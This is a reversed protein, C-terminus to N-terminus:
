DSDPESHNECDPACLATERAGLEKLLAQVGPSSCVLRPVTRLILEVEDDDLAFSTPLKLLDKRDKKDKVDAFSLYIFNHQVNWLEAEQRTPVGNLEKVRERLKERDNWAQHRLELEKSVLYTTEASYNDMPLTATTMLVDGLGPASKRQDWDVSTETKADVVIVVVRSVLRNNFMRKLSFRPDTSVLGDLTGRLGINDSLGGDLLHIYRRKKKETNTDMRLYSSADRGRRLRVVNDDSELAKRIWKPRPRGGNKESEEWKPQDQFQGEDARNVLRVPSLLGPFASSAAVARAVKFPSLDSHMLDFQDQTFEFRSGLSMDTANMFVFPRGKRQKSMKGFTAEKFITEDYYEAAMDIRDFWPSALRVWNWPSLLRWALAGQVNRRLFEQEFDVEGGEQFMEKGNLAYYAAAFSGGSVSSIVDVEDLLTGKLAGPLETNLAKMVAYSFAAARTGGGSLALVVFLGKHQDKGDVEEPSGSFRYGEAPIPASISKNEPFSVCSVLAM